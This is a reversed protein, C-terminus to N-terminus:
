DNCSLRVTCFPIETLIRYSSVIQVRHEQLLSEINEMECETTITFRHGIKSTANQATDEFPEIYISNDADLTYGTKEQAKQLDKVIGYLRQYHVGTIEALAKILDNIFYYETVMDATSLPNPPSIKHTLFEVTVM